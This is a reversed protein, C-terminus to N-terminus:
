TGDRLPKDLQLHCFSFPLKLWHVLDEEEESGMVDDIVVM